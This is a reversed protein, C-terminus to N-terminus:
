EPPAIIPFTALLGFPGAPIAFRKFMAVSRLKGIALHESVRILAELAVLSLTTM